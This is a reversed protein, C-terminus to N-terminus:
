DDRVLATVSSVPAILLCAPHTDLGTDRTLLESLVGQFIIVFHISHLHCQKMEIICFYDNSKKTMTM